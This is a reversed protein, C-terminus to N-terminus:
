RSKEKTQPYLSWRSQPFPGRGAGTQSTFTRVGERRLQRWLVEQVVACIWLQGPIERKRAKRCSYDPFYSCSISTLSWMVCCAPLVMFSTLNLPISHFIFYLFPIRVKDVSMRKFAAQLVKFNHIFEHELKAQFKVKKLLICGPFLMDMFQCYAAGSLGLSVGTQKSSGVVASSASSDRKQQAWRFVATRDQHLHSAFFRQGMGAHWTPQPQWHLCIHRVCESGDGGQSLCCSTNLHQKKPQKFSVKLPYLSVKVLVVPMVSKVQRQNAM